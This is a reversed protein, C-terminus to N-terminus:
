FKRIEGALNYDAGYDIFRWFADSLYETIDYWKSKLDDSDIESLIDLAGLIDNAGQTMLEDMEGDIAWGMQKEYEEMFEQGLRSEGLQDFLARITEPRYFDIGYSGRDGHVTATSAKVPTSLTKKAILKKM